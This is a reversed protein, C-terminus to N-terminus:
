VERIWIKYVSVQDDKEADYEWNTEIWLMIHEGTWVLPICGGYHCHLDPYLKQILECTENYSKCPVKMAVENKFDTM